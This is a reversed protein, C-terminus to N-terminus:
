PIRQEQKELLRQNIAILERLLASNERVAQTNAEILDKPASPMASKGRKRWAFLVFYLVLLVVSGYGILQFVDPQM